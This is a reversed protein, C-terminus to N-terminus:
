VGADAVSLGGAALLAAVGFTAKVGAALGSGIGSVMDM